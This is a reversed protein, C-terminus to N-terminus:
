YRSPPQWSRRSPREAHSRRSGQPGGAGSSRGFGDRTPHGHGQEYLRSQGTGGSRHSVHPAPFHRRTPAQSREEGPEEVEYAPPPGSYGEYGHAHTQRGFRNMPTPNPSIGMSMAVDDASTPDLYRDFLSRVNEATLALSKLGERGTPFIYSVSEIVQNPVSEKRGMSRAILIGFISRGALIKAYLTDHVTSM